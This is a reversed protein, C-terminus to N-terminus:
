ENVARLRIIDAPWKPLREISQIQIDECDIRSSEQARTVTLTRASYWMSRTPAM